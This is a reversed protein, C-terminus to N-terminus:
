PAWAQISASQFERANGGSEHQSTFVIANSGSPLLLDGELENFIVDSSGGGGNHTRYEDILEGSTNTLRLRDTGAANGAAFWLIRCKVHVRAADPLNITLTTKVAESTGATDSPTNVIEDILMRRKNNQPTTIYRITYWNAGSVAGAPNLSADYEAIYVQEAVRNGEVLYWRIGSRQQTIRNALTSPAPYKTNRQSISGVDATPSGGGGGTGGNLIKWEDGDWGKLFGTDTEWVLQQTKPNSPLTGSTVFQVGWFDEAYIFMDNITKSDAQTDPTPYDSGGTILPVDFLPSDPM